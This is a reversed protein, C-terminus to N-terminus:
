YTKTGLFSFVHVQSGRNWNPHRSELWVLYSFMNPKM